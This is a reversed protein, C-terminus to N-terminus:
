DSAPMCWMSFELDVMQSLSWGLLAVGGNNPASGSVVYIQGKVLHEIELRTVTQEDGLILDSLYIAYKSGANVKTESIISQSHADILTSMQM